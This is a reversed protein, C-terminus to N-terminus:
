REPSVGAQEEEAAWQLQSLPRQQERSRNGEAVSEFRDLVEGILPNEYLPIVERGCACAWLRLKRANARDFLYDACPRPDECTLWQEETM